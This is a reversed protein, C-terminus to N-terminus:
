NFINKYFFFATKIYLFHIFYYLLSTEFTNSLILQIIKLLIKTIFYYKFHLEERLTDSPYPTRKYWYRLCKRRDYRTPAKGCARLADAFSSPHQVTHVENLAFGRPLAGCINENFCIIKKNLTYKIWSKGTAFLQLFYM